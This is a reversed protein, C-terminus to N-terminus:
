DGCDRETPLEDVHDGLTKDQRLIIPTYTCLDKAIIFHKTIMATTADSHRPRRDLL